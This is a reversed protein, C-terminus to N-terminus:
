DFARFGHRFLLMGVFSDGCTKRASDMDDQSIEGPLDENIISFAGKMCNSCLIDTSLGAQRAGAVQRINDSSMSLTGTIGELGTLTQTVCMTDARDCSATLRLVDLACLCSLSVGELM